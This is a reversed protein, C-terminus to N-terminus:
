FHSKCVLAGLDDLIKDSICFGLRQIMIEMKVLDGHIPVNLNSTCKELCTSSEEDLTLAISSHGTLRLWSIWQKKEGSSRM